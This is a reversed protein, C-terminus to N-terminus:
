VYVVSHLYSPLRRNDAELKHDVKPEQPDGEGPKPDQPKNGEGGKPDQLQGSEGPAQQQAGNLTM